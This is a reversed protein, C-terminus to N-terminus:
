KAALTNADMDAPVETYHGYAPCKHQTACASVLLAAAFLVVLSLVIRKM